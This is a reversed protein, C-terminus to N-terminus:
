FIFYIFPNYDQSTMVAISLWFLVALLLVKGWGMSRTWNWSQPAFWAVLAAIFFSGVYYPGTV